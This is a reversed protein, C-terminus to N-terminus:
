VATRRFLMMRAPHPLLVATVLRRYTASAAVPMQVECPRRAQELSKKGGSQRNEPTQDRQDGQHRQPPTPFLCIAPVVRAGVEPNAMILIAMTAATASPREAHPRSSGCRTAASGRTMAARPSRAASSAAIISSKSRELSATTYMETECRTTSGQDRLMNLM